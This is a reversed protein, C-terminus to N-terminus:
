WRCGLAARCTDGKGSRVRGLGLRRCPRHSRPPPGGCWRSSSNSSMNAVLAKSLPGPLRTVAPFSPSPPSGRGAYRRLLERDTELRLDLPLHRDADEVVVVDPLRPVAASRWALLAQEWRSRDRAASALEAPLRWRAPSLITQKYRIRPQFPTRHLPEWSWGHWPRCGHAALAALLRAVPPMYRPGIRSFLVPMVQRDREASWLILRGAVSALLLDPLDLDGPMAPLGVPIRPGAFGSPAAVRALEPTRPRMVVEAVLASGYPLSGVATVGDLLGAFRGATSGAQQNGGGYVALFLRGSETAGPATLVRAYIEATAPPPLNAHHRDLADVTADSLDTELKGSATADAILAALIATRDAPLPSLGSSPEDDPDGLGAVPDIAECLPVFRDPGFSDLFRRHYGSLPDDRQSIRWLVGAAEAAEDALARSITVQADAAVDASLPRSVRAVEDCVARAASLSARREPAGPLYRDAARLHERLQELPGHLSPSVPLKAIMHALPDQHDSDPVLDTLLFGARVLTLVTSRILEEPANPWTRTIEATVTDYSAGPTCLKLILVTAATARVSVLQPGAVDPTAEQEREVRGGRRAVLNSTTLTLTRLVEHRELAQDAFATLWAPHPYTRARHRSGLLLGSEGGGIQAVALGAFAGHPTPRFRARLEYARITARLRSGPLSGVVGGQRDTAQFSQRSALFMGEAVVPDVVGLRGYGAAPLLPVRVLVATGSMVEFPGHRRVRLGRQLRQQLRQQLRREPM